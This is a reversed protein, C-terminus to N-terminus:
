PHRLRFGQLPELGPRWRPGSLGVPDNVASTDLRIGAVTMWAHGDRAYVTIWPGPGKAAWSLFTLSDQPSALLGAEHLAYSVSGSCDYANSSFSVHGGGYRYPLGILRNSSWILVKIDEPAGAPPVARGSSLIEATDGPVTPGHTIPV